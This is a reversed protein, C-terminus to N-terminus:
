KKKEKKVERQVRKAMIELEKDRAIQKDLQGSRFKKYDGTTWRAM